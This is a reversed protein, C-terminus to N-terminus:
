LPHLHTNSGRLLSCLEPEADEEKRHYSSAREIRVLRTVDCRRIGFM